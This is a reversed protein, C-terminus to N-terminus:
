RKVVLMVGDALGALACDVREDAAIRRNLDDLAQAGASEPQLVDGGYLMNDLLMLGGPRLRALVLEYYGPYGAKDADIFAFDYAPEEPLARLSDGAPGRRIEVRDRVGAAGLNASAVDAYEESLELCLLSGGAPLARAICIASYGTFTGVELADRAGTARILLGLLAGQDPTVQMEANPLEATEREVRELVADQRSGHAVMYDVMEGTIDTKARRVSAM